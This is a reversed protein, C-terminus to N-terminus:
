MWGRLRYVGSGIYEKLNQTIKHLHYADPLINLLRSQWTGKLEELEQQTLFFDTPAPIAEIGQRRFVGLSRPMHSASTVLLVPGKINKADLIKRVNVANEYTNHSDPDQFIVEPPVGMAEAIKAMDASEPPGGGKWEIRGGSLILYPAKGQRYLLAGYLIRDGADSVEVWPRPKIGPQIGGGLVVIAEARPLESQPLNQWELSQALGYSVWPNSGLILVVLASVIAGRAWRPRRRMWILAAVMLACALGLPYIFLPLLKSIFLFM